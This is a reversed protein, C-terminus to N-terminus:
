NIQRERQVSAKTSRFHIFPLPRVFPQPTLVAPQQHALSVTSCHSRAARVTYHELRLLIAACRASTGIIAVPLVLRITHAFVM